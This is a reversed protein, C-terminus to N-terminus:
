HGLQELLRDALNQAPGSAHAERLTIASHKGNGNSSNSGGSGPTQLRAIAQWHPGHRRAYCGLPLSCGGRLGALVRREIHASLRSAPQDVASLLYASLRDDVRCDAGVIGQGPAPTCQRWPCLAVARAHRLLGLRQLGAM